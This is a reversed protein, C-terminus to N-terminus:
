TGSILKRLQQAAACVCPMTYRQYCLWVAELHTTVIIERFAVQRVRHLNYVVKEMSFEYRIGKHVRAEPCLYLPNEATAENKALLRGVYGILNGEADHIPIAIRGKLWGKGCYGLGFHEVTEPFLGQEEFWSHDPDLSKLEFDLPANIRTERGGEEQVSTM